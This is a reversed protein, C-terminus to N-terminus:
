CPDPGKALLGHPDLVSNPPSARTSRRLRPRMRLGIAQANVIKAIPLRDGAAGDMLQRNYRLVPTRAPTSPIRSRGALGLRLSLNGTKAAQDHAGPDETVYLGPIGIAGAAPHDGDGPEARHRASGAAMARAEFGVSRHGSDVTPEGVVAAV